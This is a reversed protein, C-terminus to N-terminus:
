RVRAGHAREEEGAAHTAYTSSTDLWSTACSGDPLVQLLSCLVRQFGGEDWFYQLWNSVVQRLDISDLLQVGIM